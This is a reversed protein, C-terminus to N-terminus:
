YYYNAVYNNLGVGTLPRGVAMRIAAQWAYLRGEASEDVVGGEAAGGSQRGSLGAAASLVMLGMIGGGILVAKSKVRRAAFTACVAVIGLLGGRSQTALIAMAITIFGYLGFARSLWGTRETMILAVAFSMPFCLVLSLDNPDGLVSGMARGITVRTGEM